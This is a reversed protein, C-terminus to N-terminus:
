RYDHWGSRANVCDWTSSIATPAVPSPQTRTNGLTVGTGAITGGDGQICVCVSDGLDEKGRSAKTEAPDCDEM